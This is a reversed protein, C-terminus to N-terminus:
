RSKILRIREKKQNSNLEMTYIGPALKNKNPHIREENVGKVLSLSQTYVIKGLNDYLLITADQDSTESNFRVTFFETFLTPYVSFAGQEIPEQSETSICVADTIDVMLPAELDGLHNNTKYEVSQALSHESGETLNLLRLSLNEGDDGAMTMYSIANGDLTEIVSKGRLSGFQDFAGIAYQDGSLTFDCTATISSIITMNTNFSEHQVIWKTDFASDMSENEVAIGESLIEDTLSNNFMGAFPYTFTKTGTSKYMYGETPKMVKLSGIWAGLTGDYTAFQTKSKIVDGHSANLNGLAQAVSMNRISIFGIWNWNNVLTIPRTTPDVVTGKQILTGPLATYLKYLWEPKIGNGSNSLTGNWKQSQGNYSGVATLAKIQDGNTHGFSSLIKTVDLPNDQVIPWGLWNWGAHLDVVLSIKSSTSFVMPSGVTGVVSNSNFTLNAPLVESFITGSSADWIRFELLEGSAGSSYIDLFALYIDLQPIYELHAVGRVENGVYAVIMDEPDTSVVNNIKLRAVVGMFNEYLAPNVHWDPESGRVKLNITLKEPFNFDTLVSLDNTYDGINIDSKVTFTILLSSNPNITGSSPSVTLWSPIDKINFEKTAGGQNVIHTTFTLSEGKLMSFSLIDDQWIVQNKDMYAIWTVPSEMVNGHLDKLGQVTVDLTVNEIIEPSTTPTLIIQDNNISYSFNIAQVPRQLKIKPTTNVLMVGSSSNVDHNVGNIQENFSPTLIPIGTPDTQHDEFPLYLVLGLEDGTMRNQKDRRVQELKRATNWLRFEDMKGSYFGEVTEIGTDIFGHAGLYMHSGVLQNFPLAQTTNELNGDIYCSLNGVRQFILAFHHWHGDFYNHSTAEFNIGNHKILINGSADKDISWSLLSDANQNTGSGNSFLTAEGGVNSNFWFELTFDMGSTINVDGTAIKLHDNVGDFSAANGNPQIQWQAGVITADRRRIHEEAFIGDAEDMRWNYLLGQEGGSLLLSKSLSFQSLTRANSWIRLEHINGSFFNNNTVTNKGIAMVGSGVYDPLITTNGNNALYASSTGDAIFIEAKELEYDYSVAFYTWVNAPIANSSTVEQGNIRFVFKNASNFGIFIRENIDTGQSIIAQEGSGIRLASFEITFDRRELPVGGTVEVYDNVGDFFLSTSHKVETGNTVGRIDFNFTPNIAGAYISENFRISIEDNPSLIGDAPSPNGFLHPNVRDIIGTHTVSTKEAFTCKSIVRLDYDGDPLQSVDWDYLTFPTTSPIPILEQDNSGSTDKYFAQLGFWESKDTPKYDVRLFELDPLNINYDVLSVPMTDNFSNNLVWKDEPTALSVNTCTPIFHASIYISDGIDTTWGSGAAYQCQSTFVVLISDYNYVPGAGKEITIVKNIATGGPIEVQQFPLGDFRVIAGFPNSASIMKLNYAETYNLASENGLTINFVAPQDSPINTLISQSSTITPKEIQLTAPSIVTGIPEYYSTVVAPEYPCSTASGAKTKFIPGWGLMSPYVDVSLLDGANIDLSYSITETEETEESWNRGSSFTLNIGKEFGFGTGSVKAGVELKLEASMGFEIEREFTSASEHTISEEITVGGGLTYNEPSKINEFKDLIRQRKAQYVEYEGKIEALGINTATTAAFIAYGAFATGPIAINVVSNYTTVANALDSAVILTYYGAIVEAYEDELRTLEVEKLSDIVGPNGANVKEWENLRIAEEWKSIQYNILRVSDGTLSDQLSTPLYYYSPGNLDQFESSNPTPTSVNDGFVPDDNNKGYNDDSIPLSWIYKPNSQLIVNRLHILNPIILYKINYETYKFHTEYGGPVVSLGYKKGFTFGSTAGAADDEGLPEIENSLLNPMITLEEAIGFEVNKSTGIYVDSDAGTPYVTDDSTSVSKTTTKSITQSGTNGGGITTHFGATLDNKTESPTAVGVGTILRTGVLLEDVSYVEAGLNWSWKTQESKTVGTEWSASSNSGPPDRLIYEPVQPGETVFQTGKSQKGLMYARYIGDGGFPINAGTVPLWSIAQGSSTILNIELKRTFSYDPISANPIFNPYGPKFSYVLSRLTDPDNFDKLDVTIAPTNPLYSELALENNFHLTGDSTPVSDMVVGNDLNTYLEFVKIMCRYLFDDDQQHLVPWRFPENRLNRKITTGTSPITFQYISDGIFPSVGDKDFVAIQPLVRYIYDLKHHYQISDVHVIGGSSNFITDYETQLEPTTSYDLQSLVGFDITPNNIISVSPVYKLPPVLVVFEGSTDITTLVHTSCGNGQLSKLTIDAQGINNKSKGLGPIKKGERTGGVVRGVVKILTSDVFNIGSRPEQFDYSGSAPFRGVSYVHGDQEVTIVHQGIPVQVEFLGSDDTKAPIGQVLVPEGDVKIFADKVGCTTNKYNVSGTVTFSSKDLFDIGVQVVDGDGIYLAKTSPNFEHTLYDPTLVFIEGSNHYPAILVYNGLADTYAAAGLQSPSPIVDSWSPNGVFNAHNQNFILGSKSIDYAYEGVGENMRLYVRLGTETGVLIRSFDNKMQQASKGSNWIRLEDMHGTFDQGVIIESANDWIDVGNTFVSLASESIKKAGNVYIQLSDNHVQAAIHSFNNILLNSAPIAVSEFETVNKYVTFRYENLSHIYKLSYSGSKEILTFDADYSTPKIWTELLVGSNVDLSSADQIRIHQSGNMLLSNGFIGSTSEATIRVGEVAVGGGYSVNGTITGFPSRFGITSSVNSYITTQECQSEAIVSYQYLVGADTFIDVFLHSGSNLTGIITSDQNSGFPKRYIKFANIFNANNQITWNLEVRNSFYGKSAILSTAPDFVNSLDPVLKIKPVSDCLVGNASCNNYARLRYEYTQCQILSEDLFSLSDPHVDYYSAGSGGIQSREIKFANARAVPPWSLRVGVGPIIEANLDIPKDPGLPSIGIVAPSQPGWGCENRAQITYSYEVGRTLNKDEYSRLNGGLDTLLSGNRYIRFNLPSATNWEWSLLVSGDCRDTSATFNIPSDPVNKRTGGDEPSFGGENKYGNMQKYFRVKYQYTVGPIGADITALSAASVEKLLIGNRYVEAMAGACLGQPMTWSINTQNCDTADSATCSTADPIRNYTQPEEGTSGGDEWTGTIRFKLTKGIDSVKLTAEVSIGFQVDSSGTSFVGILGMTRFSGPAFSIYGDDNPNWSWPGQGGEFITGITTWTGDVQMELVAGSEWFDDNTTGSEDNYIVFDIRVKGTCQDISTSFWNENYATAFLQNRSFTGLLFIGLCLIFLRCFLLRKQKRNASNRQSVLTGSIPHASSTFM